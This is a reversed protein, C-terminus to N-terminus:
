KVRERSFMIIHCQRGSEVTVLLGGYRRWQITGNLRGSRRQEAVGSAEDRALVM